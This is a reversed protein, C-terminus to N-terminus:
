IVRVPGVHASNSRKGTESTFFLYCHVDKDTFDVPVNMSFTGASRPAAGILTIFEKMVPEYVVIVLEDAPGGQTGVFTDAFWEFKITGQTAGSGAGLDKLGILKGQSLTLKDYDIGFSPSVGNIANILNYSVAENMATVRKKTTAFGLKIVDPIYALLDTILRWKLQQDLQKRTAPKNSKKHLGTIIGEGDVIRGILPGAKESIPDLPGNLQRAMIKFILNYIITNIAITQQALYVPNGLLKKIETHATACVLNGTNFGTGRGAGM